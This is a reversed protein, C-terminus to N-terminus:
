DRSGTDGGAPRWVPLQVHFTSGAGPTSEVWVDGEQMTAARKVVALGIGTGPYEEQSHLRQFVSFIRGFHESKIGIGNDAVSVVCQDGQLRWALKISPVVDPKRYTLANDFLNLFIQSLLTWDGRVIPLDDAIRLDAGTEGLRPELNRRIEALVDVLAIPKLVVAKRGLSAYNLLDDILQGMQASAQVINDLYHRGDESLSQQHRRALIQAFGIIARLPARLDHSVSYSFSELEANASQLQETRELLTHNAAELERTRQELEQTRSELERTRLDLQRSSERNQEALRENHARLENAM